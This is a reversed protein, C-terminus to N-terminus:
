NGHLSNGKIRNQISPLVQLNGEWHLGCVIPSKLPVIHDVEHLVGTEKTLRRADAYIAKIAKPDAWLPTATYKAARKRASIMTANKKIYRANNARVKQRSGERERWAIVKAIEAERNRRYYATRAKRKAPRNSKSWASSRVLLREKNKEYYLRWCAKCRPQLGYSKASSKFFESRAKKIHCGSCIRHDTLM